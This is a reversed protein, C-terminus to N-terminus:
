VATLPWGLIPSLIVDIKMDALIGSLWVPSVQLVWPAEEPSAQGKGLVVRVHWRLHLKLRRQEMRITRATHGRGQVQKRVFHKLDVGVAFDADGDQVGRLFVFVAILGGCFAPRGHLGRLRDKEGHNGHQRARVVLARRVHFCRTQPPLIGLLELLPHALADPLTQTLLLGHIPTSLLDVFKKKEKRKVKKRTRCRM